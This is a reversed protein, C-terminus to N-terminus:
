NVVIRLVSKRSRCQIHLFWIGAELGELDLEFARDGAQIFGTFMESHLQGRANYLRLSLEDSVPMRLTLLAYDSAPNPSIAADFYMESSVAFENLGVNGNHLYVEFVRNTATSQTGDNEFFINPATSEIGGVIYGILWPEEPIEDLMLLGNENQAIGSAPIFEASSGLLSEMEGMFVESYNGSNDRSIRSISKVFPVDPDDILNNGADPYYRSMGGFFVNHMENHQASYLSLKASHYQGLLQELVPIESYGSETIKVCNHWPLDADPRFVGSFMIFGESGDEFVQPSMNYDRRHLLDPNVWEEYDSVSLSGESHQVRFRIIKESYEQVFGPGHDPGMPNYRGEFYQGGALYFMGNLLDMQGGTIAFREDYVQLIHLEPSEGNMIAEMAGPVYIATFYPYTIHDGASTSYGYGGALYLTDGQQVFNINTSQLQERLSPAFADLNYSFVEQEVPNIVYLVTNNESALFSDFPHRQHLGDTRGGALLWKGEHQAWVFSQLGPMGSIEYPEVSLTFSSEQAQLNHGTFAYIGVFVFFLLVSKM